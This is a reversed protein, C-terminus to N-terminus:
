YFPVFLQNKADAYKKADIFPQWTSIPILMQKKNDFSSDILLSKFIHKQKMM